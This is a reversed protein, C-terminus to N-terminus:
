PSVSIPEGSAQHILTENRSHNTLRSSPGAPPMASRHDSIPHILTNTKM